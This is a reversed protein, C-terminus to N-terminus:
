IWFGGDKESVFWPVKESFLINNEYQIINYTM